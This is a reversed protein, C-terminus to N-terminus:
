NELMVDLYVVLLREFRKEQCENEVLIAWELGEDESGSWNDIRPLWNEKHDDALRRTIQQSM